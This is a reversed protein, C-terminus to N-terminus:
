KDRPFYIRGTPHDHHLGGHLQPPHLDTQNQSHLSILVPNLLPSLSVFLYEIARWALPFLHSLLFPFLLILARVFLTLRKCARPSAKRKPFRPRMWAM